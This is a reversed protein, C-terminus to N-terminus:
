FTLAKSNSNVYKWWEKALKDTSNLCLDKLKTLKLKNQCWTEINQDSCRRTKAWAESVLRWPARVKTYLLCKYSSDKQSLISSTHLNMELEVEECNSIYWRRNQGYYCSFNRCTASERWLKGLKKFNIGPTKPRETFKIIGFLNRSDVARTELSDKRKKLSHYLLCLNRLFNFMKDVHDTYHPWHQLNNMENKASLEPFLVGM